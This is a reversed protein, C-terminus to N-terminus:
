EEDVPVDQPIELIDAFIDDDGFLSEPKVFTLPAKGNRQKRKREQEFLSQYTHVLFEEMDYLPTKLEDERGLSKALTAVAPYYHRELGGLEWLSSQLANAQEPDDTEADFGDEAKDQQRHVLCSIEPHKRILNACLALVFLTSSPPAALTSRILRKVFAAVVHAPLMDNRTLCKVLLRFFRTRFKVYLLSPTVLRYLQKYFNPYELGHHTVLLFLGDLALLPVVGTNDYAQMFFDAFRLPSGVLPLVNEPLFRLANKLAPLPMSLRLVSLWAKSWARHNFQIQQFSFRQNETTTDLRPRKRPQEDKSDDVGDDSDDDSSDQSSNSDDDSDEEEADKEEDKDPVAGEPPAFLASGTSDLDKQSSPTPIMMLVEVLRDAREETPKKDKTEGQKQQQHYLENACGMIAIMSYYQVDRYPHLFETQLMNRISKDVVPLHTVARVWQLLLDASVLEYKGNNSKVPSTAIVGWLTRVATRKGAAIRDCLQNVFRKHSKALYDNWKRRVSSSSDSNGGTNNSKANLQFDGSQILRAYVKRLEDLRAADARDDPSAKLLAKIQTATEASTSSAAM